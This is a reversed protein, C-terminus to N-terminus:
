TSTPRAATYASVSSGRSDRGAAAQPPGGAPAAAGLVETQLANFDERAQLVAPTDGREGDPTLRGTLRAQRLADRVEARTPAAKRATTHATTPVTTSVGEARAAADREAEELAHVALGLMAAFVLPLM